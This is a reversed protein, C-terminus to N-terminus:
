DLFSCILYPIKSLPAQQMVAGLEYAVKPMGYVVCSKADQGITKAGHKRMSLLGKAGDAGMGTLLVGVADKGVEQAVSEFLVDVSPCHSSVKEGHYCKVRYGGGSRVVRMQHDGPAILISGPTVSAGDEAEAVTAELISNLRKAYMKTFGPPMHQVIVIGPLDRPLAKLVDLTAETGGTSAGIAILKKGWGPKSVSVSPLSQKERFLNAVSAVKIKAKLDAIFSEPTHGSSRDLKAVFDVAGAHIAEFVRENASSIVIVPLSNKPGLQKLFEIGDMGPMELDLTMVDPKFHNLKEKAEYADAATAVVEFEPDKSLGNTLFQRYVMSDDAILIRIKKM